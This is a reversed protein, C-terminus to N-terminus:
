DHGATQLGLGSYGVRSRQGHSEKELFSYHLPYSNREGPPRGLGSILAPHRANCASEKYDSGGLM